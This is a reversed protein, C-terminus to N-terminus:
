KNEPKEWYGYMSRDGSDWSDYYYGEHCTVLHHAVRLVYTGQKNNKAFESVTPRKSGKKVPITHYIFGNQILYEKWAEDANPMVKLEFGIRYLDIYVEDWEKDMAKCMARVVCDGTRNKKPNPNYYINRSKKTVSIIKNAMNTEGKSKM